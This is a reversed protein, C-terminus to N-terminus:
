HEEGHSRQMALLDVYEEQSSEQAAFSDRLSAINTAASRVRASYSRLLPIKRGISHCMAHVAQTEIVPRFM